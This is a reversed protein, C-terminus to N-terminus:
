ESKGTAYRKNLLELVEQTIDYKEKVYFVTTNPVSSYIVEFNKDKNYEKLVAQISDNVRDFAQSQLLALDQQLANAHQEITAQKQQLRRAESEQRSQGGIFSNTQVKQMFDQYERQFSAMQKNVQDEAQAKKQVLDQTLDIQLQYNNYLSDAQIFAIPLSEGETLLGGAVKTADANNSKICSSMGGVLVGAMVLASAIAYNKKM